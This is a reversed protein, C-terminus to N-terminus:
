AAGHVCLTNYLSIGYHETRIIRISVNPSFNVFKLTNIIYRSLIKRFKSKQYFTVIGYQLLQLFIALVVWVFSYAVPERSM